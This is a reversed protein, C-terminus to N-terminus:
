LADYGRQAYRTLRELCTAVDDSRRLEDAIAKANSRYQPDRLVDAAAERVLEVERSTLAGVDTTDLEINRGARAREITRANSFQDAFRPVAVVPVGAALAAYTTGSGGHCVVLSARTLMEAQDVWQEVRVNTFPKTFEDRRMSHGTSAVVDVDLGAFRCLLWGRLSWAGYRRSNITLTAPDM